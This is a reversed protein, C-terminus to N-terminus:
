KLNYGDVVLKVRKGELWKNKIVAQLVRTEHPLLSVYNDSWLVPLITEGTDSDRIAPHIFFAIKDSKNELTVEFVTKHEGKKNGMSSTIEVKRMGNLATFDAYQKSPTYIYDRVRKDNYDLIDKRPSIWYFNNDIERGHEDYLRTDIFYVSPINLGSLSLIERSSNAKLDVAVEKQYKLESQIDYISVKVRCRNKDELRDNVVFLSAKYYDYIVHYPRQAVKAGYYAGNPMLYYDYLQWYLEPWASNLMWQIVGTAKYRYASFAEFMPRMLEYNLVQAKKIFDDFSVPAGYRMDLAKRYRGLDGFVGRGCHYNWMGDMPWLHDKSFMKRLSQAPPIQAGPGTETNFGYAGGKLTDSYWYVPPVCDYPGEMKVGTPGDLTTCKKASGLYVRTSDYESFIEFYKKELAPKPQLDSAGLWTFISPHNRLWVIQDRWAHTMMDMDQESLIGGYKPDTHKGLLHAWEWHCSWGVMILIGKQDCLDYITQDNGWFGEMRITNLHMDKVYDLQAELSERTDDLLLRDVWGGGRILMKKGNIKYGRAGKETFFKSVTRIGFDVAKRDLVNQGWKFSFVARYLHPNGLTHPWWLEPDDIELAPYKEPHFIVKKTEGAALTVPMSIERDDIGLTVAGKLDRGTYNTLRVSATLSARSLDENLATEIFPESIGVGGNKEMFVSRFLGMNKDPPAPNWDVFGISFDGPGPPIVEVALVNKGKVAYQSVEFSFRRFSNVVEATDAIQKGNLWINAKYNIGDFKLLLGPPIEELSFERRYWWPSQFPEAPIKDLNDDRFIDRYIGHNVLCHLVTGPVESSYWNKADYGVASIVSGGAKVSDASQIQWSTKLAKREYVKVKKDTCSSIFFIIIFLIFSLFPHKM